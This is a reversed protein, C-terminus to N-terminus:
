YNNIIFLKSVFGSKSTIIDADVTSEAVRDIALHIKNLVKPCDPCTVTVQFNEASGNCVVAISNTKRTSYLIRIHNLVDDTTVSLLYRLPLEDFHKHILDKMKEKSYNLQLDHLCDYTMVKQLIEEVFDNKIQLVYADRKNLTCIAAHDHIRNKENYEEEKITDQKKGKNYMQCSKKGEKPENIFETADFGAVNNFTWRRTIPLYNQDYELLIHSFSCSSMSVALPM